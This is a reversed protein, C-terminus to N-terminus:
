QISKRDPCLDSWFGKRWKCDHFSPFSWPQKQRAWCAFYLSFYWYFLLGVEFLITSNMNLLFSREAKLFYQLYPYLYFFNCTLPKPHLNNLIYYSCGDYTISLAFVHLCCPWISELYTISYSQAFAMSSSVTEWDSVLLTICLTIHCRYKKM